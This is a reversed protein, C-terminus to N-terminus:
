FERRKQWFGNWKLNPFHTVKPFIYKEFHWGLIESHVALIAFHIAFCLVLIAFHLALITFCLELLRDHMHLLKMKHIECNLYYLSFGLSKISAYYFIKFHFFIILKKVGFFATTSRSWHFSVWHKISKIQNTTFDRWTLWQIATIENV